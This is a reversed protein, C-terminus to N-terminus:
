GTNSWSESRRWAVRESTRERPLSFSPSTSAAIRSIRRARSSASTLKLTTLAKVAVSFSRQRPESTSSLRSGPWCTTLITLSSSVASIPPAPRSRAKAELPGSRSGSPRAQLARALRGGAGLEGAVEALRALVDGEGGAVDVPRGRDLLQDGDALAGPGVDVLLAGVGVRDLDGGPRELAGALLAAVHQDDVGGAAEVDVLLQHVLQRLDALPGLGVVHQQDDVRHGALVGDADGFGEGLRGLEVADHHGLEVAVGAAAGRERDLRHGALRDEEGRGALLQLGELAEVGVAHGRPDEAHAVHEAQDLFGLLLDVLALGLVQLLFEFRSWNVSSSKRWCIRWTRLIPGSLPRIPISGPIPAIFCSFFASTSSPSSSRTSAIMREIVGARARWGPSRDVARPAFPDRVARPGLDLVDVLQDLLEVLHALHHLLHRGALHRGRLLDGLHRPRAAGAGSTGCASADVPRGGSRTRAHRATRYGRAAM